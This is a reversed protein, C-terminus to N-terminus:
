VSTLELMVREKVDSLEGISSVENEIFFDLSELCIEDSFEGINSSKETLFDDFGTLKLLNAFFGMSNSLKSHFFGM